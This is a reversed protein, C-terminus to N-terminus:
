LQNYKSQPIDFNFYSVLQGISISELDFKEQQTHEITTLDFPLTQPDSDTLALHYLITYYLWNLHFKSDAVPLCDNSDNLNMRATTNLSIDHVIPSEM